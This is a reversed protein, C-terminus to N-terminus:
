LARQMADGPLWRSERDTQSRIYHLADAREFSSHERMLDILMARLLVIRSEIDIMSDADGAPPLTRGADKLITELQATEALMDIPEYRARLAAAELLVVITRAYSQTVGEPLHPQLHQEFTWRISDLLEHLSPRM